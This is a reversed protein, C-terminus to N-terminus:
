PHTTVTVSVLYRPRAHGQPDASDVEPQYVVSTAKVKTVVGDSHSGVISTAMSTLCANALNYAQKHTGGHAAIEVDAEELYQKYTFGGGTRNVLVLPYTRDHPLDSYVRDIVLATVATQGRLFTTILAEVDVTL